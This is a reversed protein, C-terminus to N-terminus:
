TQWFQWLSLAVRCSKVAALKTLLLSIQHRVPCQNGCGCAPKEHYDCNEHQGILHERIYVTMRFSIFAYSNLFLLPGHHCLWISTLHIPSPCHWISKDMTPNFSLSLPTKFSLPTTLHCHWHQQWNANDHPTTLHRQWITKHFPKTLHLQWITHLWIVHKLWM